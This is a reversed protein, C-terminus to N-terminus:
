SWARTLVSCSPDVESHRAPRPEGEARAAEHGRAARTGGLGSDLGRGRGARREGARAPGQPGAQAPATTSVREVRVVPQVEDVSGPDVGQEVGQHVEVEVGM